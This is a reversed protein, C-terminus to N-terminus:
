EQDVASPAPTSTLTPMSAIGGTQDLTLRDMMDTEDIISGIGLDDMTPIQGDDDNDNNGNMNVNVSNDKESILGILITDGDRIKAMYRIEMNDCRLVWNGYNFYLRINNKTENKLVNSKKNEENELLKNYIKERLTGVLTDNSLKLEKVNSIDLNSKSDNEKGDENKEKFLDFKLTWEEVKGGGDKNAKNGFFKGIQALNESNKIAESLKSPLVLDDRQVITMFIIDGIYSPTESLKTTNEKETSDIRKGHIKFTIDSANFNIKDNKDSIKIYREVIRKKLDLLTMSPVDEVKWDDRNTPFTETIGCINVALRQKHKKAPAAAM